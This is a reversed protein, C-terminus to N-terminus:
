TVKRMIGDDGVHFDSGRWTFRSTFFSRCWVWCILLDRAPLLWLDAFIPRRDRIRHVFHLALRAIVTVQFLPLAVTAFYSEPFALLLGLVALPLSFTFFIFRFSRPKLVCLTRMWRLEHRVLSELTPEHHEAKLMYSSLVIRLGLDRVQQGLQYDDALHNAIVKLGGIAELTDRRICLTQGSVYNEHGFLWALLVSPMYWENIYMAGLRSWVPHTPEGHYLCTVLGVKRDLLPATVSGLYDPRVFADSDAMVLVDHRAHELMNILSSIKRNHGHQQPNIVVEIPLQPFEAVVRAVVALAPDEADGVGFIIQFEPYDQQCFTRLNEYLGPEAGCLPKLVTVPPLKVPPRALKRRRWVLVAVLTLLAYAAALALTGVGVIGVMLHIAAMLERAGM